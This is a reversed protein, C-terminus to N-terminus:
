RLIFSAIKIFLNTFYIVPPGIIGGLMGGFVLIMLLITGHFSLSELTQAMSEPLFRNLIKAGDLPGLPILNFFCLLLNIGIGSFLMKTLPVYIGVPISSFFKNLLVLIFTFIFSLIFNSAPGAASILFMDNRYNRLNVPNVPVPKAWGFIFGGGAAGIVPFVFTGIPDAHNLPNLSIRGMLRGTPDGLKNAVWAHATEHIAISLLFPVMMIAVNLITGGIDINEM